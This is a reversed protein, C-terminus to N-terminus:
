YLRTLMVQNIDLSLKYFVFNGIIFASVEVVEDSKATDKVEDESIIYSTVKNNDFELKESDQLTAENELVVIIEKAKNDDAVASKVEDIAVNQQTPVVTEKPVLVESDMAVCETPINEDVMQKMEVVTANDINEICAVQEFVVAPTEKTDENVQSEGELMIAKESVTTLSAVPESTTETIQAELILENDITITKGFETPKEEQGAMITLTDVTTQKKHMEQQTEDYAFDAQQAAVQTATIATVLNEHLQTAVEAVRQLVQDGMVPALQPANYLVIVQLATLASQLQQALQIQENTAINNLESVTEAAASEQKAAISERLQCAVHLSQKLEETKPVVSM